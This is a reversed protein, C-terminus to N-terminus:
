NMQGAVVLFAALTAALLMGALTKSGSADKPVSPKVTAGVTHHAGPFHSFYPSAFRTMAFEKPIDIRLSNNTLM